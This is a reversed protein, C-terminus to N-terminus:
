QAQMLQEELRKRESTDNVFAIAFTGEETEVYSLSVEVPFEAGDKRRGSLDLGIGMPRTRPQTFYEDRQRGHSARKSEPLLIEIRAGLLEDRTYGFIEETKRNALVIRGAPDISLIAQSASELLAVVMKENRHLMDAM